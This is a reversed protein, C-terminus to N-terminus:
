TEESRQGNPQYAEYADDPMLGTQTSASNESKTSFPKGVYVLAVLKTFSPHTDPIDAGAPVIDIDLDKDDLVAAISVTTRALPQSTCSCVVIGYEFGDSCKVVSAQSWDLTSDKATKYELSYKVKAKVTKKGGNDLQIDTPTLAHQHQQLPVVAAQAQMPDAASSPYPSLKLFLSGDEVPVNDGFVAAAGPFREKDIKQGDPVTWGSFTDSDMDLDLSNAASLRQLSPLAFMRIEGIQPGLLLSGPGDVASRLDPLSMNESVGDIEFTTISCLVNSRRSSCFSEVSLSAYQPHVHDSAAYKDPSDYIADGLSLSALIDASLQQELMQFAVSQSKHWGGDLADALSGPQSIMLMDDPSLQEQSVVEGIMSIPTGSIDYKTRKRLRM